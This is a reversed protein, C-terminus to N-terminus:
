YKLALPGDKSVLVSWGPKDGIAVSAVFKDRIYIAAEILGTDKSETWECRLQNQNTIPAINASDNLYEKPNLFPMDEPLWFSTQPPQQQNYLWVDGVIDEAEYLYAYAVRGDDKVKLAYHSDFECFIHLSITLM